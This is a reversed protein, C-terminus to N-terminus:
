GSGTRAPPRVFEVVYDLAAGHPHHTRLPLGTMRRIFRAYRRMWENPILWTDFARFVIPWALNCSYCAAVRLGRRRFARTWDFISWRNGVAWRPHRRASLLRAQVRAYPSATNSGSIVLRGGPCLVRALEAAADDPPYLLYLTRHCVVADLSADPVPLRRADAAAVSLRAAAARRLSSESVDFGFPRCGRTRLATLIRGDACGVDLVRTGPPWAIEELLVRELEEQIFSARSPRRWERWEWRLRDAFRQHLRRSM